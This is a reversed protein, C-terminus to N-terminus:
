FLISCGSYILFIAFIIKLYKDSIKNLVKAGTLGGIIGGIACLIGTNWNILNNKAYLIATTFVMPLVCFISTARAKKPEMQLFYIFAPVLILGGGSTFLGSVIGATFGIIIKKYNENCTKKM